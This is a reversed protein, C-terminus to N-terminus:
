RPSTNGSFFYFFTLFFIVLYFFSFMDSLLIFLMDNQACTFLPVWFPDKPWYLKLSSLTHPFYNIPAAPMVPM